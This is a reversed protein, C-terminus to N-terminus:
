LGSRLKAAEEKTQLAVGPLKSIKDLQSAADGRKGDAILAKAYNLRVAPNAPVLEVAKALLESGKDARGNKVYLAGVTDLVAASRPALTLAKEGIALAAPDGAEGLVWALNNMAAVDDPRANVVVRYWRTAEGYRKHLLHYEGLYAPVALDKPHLDIWEEAAADAEKNRGQESLMGYLRMMVAPANSKKLLARLQAEAETFRKQAALIDAEAVYGMANGPVRKQFERADVMAQEFNGSRLSTKVLATLVDASNPERQLAKRLADDAAKWEKASAYVGAQLVLPAASRPLLSALKGYSSVAQNTDGAASQVSALAGLIAPDDPLAAQAQQAATVADKVNGQLVLFEIKMIHGRVSDPRAAVLRNIAADVVNADAGIRQKLGVLAVLAEENKPDKTLIKEYRQEAADPKREQLDLLALNRAAPFYTEQLEIARDFAQRAAARDGKAQLVLGSLNHSVPNDPQKSKLREVAVLAKDIDRKNLYFTILAVDADYQNADAASSAELEQLARQTDGGALHAQGLRTRSVPNAPDLSIAKEFYEAAKKPERARLAVEGALIWTVPEGSSGKLLPALVSRAKHIQGSRLYTSVLLRRPYAADPTAELAKLLYDEAQVFGGLDHEVAGALLLAPQYDAVGKMVHRLAERARRRDGGSYAVLADLYATIPSEPALKKVKAVWEEAGKLDRERILLPILSLYPRLARPRLEIAKIYYIAADKDKGEMVLLDAKLQLGEPWAPKAALAKDALARAQPLDREIASVKALGLQGEASSSDVALARAYAIKGDGLKGTGLYADGVYAYLAAKDAPREAAEPNAEKLAKDFQGSDVLVAVLALRALAPDFGGSTAKRLEIEAAGPDGSERLAVGLLYRAEGSDPAKQLANKLEIIAAPYERKEIHYKSSAIYSEPSHRNCGVLAVFVLATVPISSGLSPIQYM